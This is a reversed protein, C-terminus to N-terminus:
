VSEEEAGFVNTATNKPMSDNIARILKVKEKLPKVNLVRIKRATDELDQAVWKAATSWAACANDLIMVSESIMALVSDLELEEEYYENYLKNLVPTLENIIFSIYEKYFHATQDYGVINAAYRDGGEIIYRILWKTFIIFNVPEKGVENDAALYGSDVLSDLGSRSFSNYEFIRTSLAKGLDEVVTIDIM